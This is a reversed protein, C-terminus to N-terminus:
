GPFILRASPFRVMVKSGASDSDREKLGHSSNSKILTVARVLPLTPPLRFLVHIHDPMGGVAFSLVNNNKCIGAIYAWLRPQFQQPILKLRNQHQVGSPRPKTRLQPGHSTGRRNAFTIEAVSSLLNNKCRSGASM